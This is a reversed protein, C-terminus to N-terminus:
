GGTGGGTSPDTSMAAEVKAVMDTYIKGFWDNGLAASLGVAVVAALIAYEIATVGREDSKLSELTLWVKRCLNAYM